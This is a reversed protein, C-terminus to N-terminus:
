QKTLVALRQRYRRITAAVVSLSYTPSGKNLPDLNPQWQAVSLLEKEDDETMMPVAAAFGQTRIVRNIDRMHAQQAELEAIRQQLRTQTTM